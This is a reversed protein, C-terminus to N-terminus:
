QMFICAFKFQVPILVGKDRASILLIVRQVSQVDRGSFTLANRLELLPDLLCHHHSSVLSVPFDNYRRVSRLEPLVFYGQSWATFFRKKM